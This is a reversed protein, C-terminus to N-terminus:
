EQVKVEIMDSSLILPYESGPLTGVLRVKLAKVEAPLGRVPFVLTSSTRGRKLTFDRGPPSFPSQHFTYGQQALVKGERTTVVVERGDFVSSFSSRVTLEKGTANDLTADCTFFVDQERQQASAGTLVLSVPPTVADNAPPRDAVALTAVVPLTVLLCHILM